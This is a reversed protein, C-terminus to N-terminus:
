QVESRLEDILKWWGGLQELYTRQALRLVRPNDQLYKQALKFSEDVGSPLRTSNKPNM